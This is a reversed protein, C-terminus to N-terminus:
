REVVRGLADRVLLEGESTARFTILTSGSFPNPAATLERDEVAPPREVATHIDTPCGASDCGLSDLRVLWVDSLQDRQAQGTLLIGGDSCATLRTFTDYQPTKDIFRQWLMYGSADTKMLWGLTTDPTQSEGCALLTGDTLEVADYFADTRAPDLGPYFRQWLINGNVDIKALSAGCTDISDPCWTRELLFNGDALPAVAYASSYDGPLYSFSLQNGMSDTRLLFTPFTFVPPFLSTYIVSYGVIMYGGDALGIVDTPTENILPDGYTHDWLRVGQPDTKLLYIQFPVNNYPYVPDHSTFGLVAVHDDGGVAMGAGLNLNYYTNSNEYWKLWLTDGIPGYRVLFIGVHDTTDYTPRTGAGFFDATQNSKEFGMTVFANETDKVRKTFITDGIAQM